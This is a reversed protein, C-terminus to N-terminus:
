VDCLSRETGVVGTHSHLEVVKGDEELGGAVVRGGSGQVLPGQVDLLLGETGIVGIHGGAEM